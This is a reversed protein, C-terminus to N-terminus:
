LMFDDQHDEQDSDQEDYVDQDDDSGPEIVAFQSRHMAVPQIKKPSPKASCCYKRYRRYVIATGVMAVLAIAGCIITALLYVVLQNNFPTNSSFYESACSHTTDPLGTSLM